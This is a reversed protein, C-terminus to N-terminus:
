TVEVEEDIEITAVPPYAFVSCEMMPTYFRISGDAFLHLKGKIRKTNTINVFDNPSCERHISGSGNANYVEVIDCEAESVICVLQEQEYGFRDRPEGYKKPAYVIKVDRGDRTKCMWHGDSNRKCKNLDFTDHIKWVMNEKEQKSM